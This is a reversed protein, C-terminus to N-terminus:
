LAPAALSLGTRGWRIRDPGLSWCVIRAKGLIDRLPVPGFVRSDRSHGRNDGLVYVYGHPVVLDTGDSSRVTEGPLAAIRKIYRKSRDDVYVFVIIDGRQPSVRDYATNDVLIRDGPLIRPRMSETPIKYLAAIHEHVYAYATGLALVSGLMFSATYFYWNTYAKTGEYDPSRKMYRFAEVASLFYVALVSTITLTIGVPLWNDSLLMSIRMGAILFSIYIILLCAGKLLEGNYVQGLGPMVLGLLAAVLKKRTNNQGM